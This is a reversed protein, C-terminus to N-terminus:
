LSDRRGGIPTSIRSIRHGERIRRPGAAQGPYYGGQPAAQPYAQQQGQYAQPPGQYAQPQGGQYAGPPYGGQYAQPQQQYGGQPPPGYAQQQMQPPYRARLSASAAPSSVAPGHTATPLKPGTARRRVMLIEARSSIAKCRDPALRSIRTTTTFPIGSWWPGCNGLRRTASPVRTRPDRSCTIWPLRLVSTSAVLVVMIAGLLFAKKM